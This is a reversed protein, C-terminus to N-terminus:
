TIAIIEVMNINNVNTLKSCYSRRVFKSRSPFIICKFAASITSSKVRYSFNNPSYLTENCLTNTSYLQQMRIRQKRIGKIVKWFDKRKKGM